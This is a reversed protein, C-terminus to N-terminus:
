MRALFAGAPSTNPDLDPGDWPLAALLENAPRDADFASLGRLRSAERPNRENTDSLPRTM